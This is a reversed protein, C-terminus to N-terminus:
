DSKVELNMSKNIVFKITPKNEGKFLIEKPARKESTFYMREPIRDKASFHAIFM